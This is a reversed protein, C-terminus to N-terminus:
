LRTGTKRDILEVSKIKGLERPSLPVDATKGDILVTADRVGQAHRVVYRVRWGFTREDAGVSGEDLERLDLEIAERITTHSEDDLDLTAVVDFERVVPKELRLHLKPTCPISRAVRLVEEERADQVLIVGDSPEITEDEAHTLLVAFGVREAAFRENFYPRAAICTPAGLEELTPTHRNKIQHAASSGAVALSLAALAAVLAKIARARPAVHANKRVRAVVHPRAARYPDPAHEFAIVSDALPHDMPVHDRTDLDADPVVSWGPARGASVRALWRARAIDRIASSILLFIGIALPAIAVRLDAFPLAVAAAGASVAGSITAVREPADIAHGRRATSAARALATAAITVVVLPVGVLAFHKAGAIMPVVSAAAIATAVRGLSPARRACVGCSVGAGIAAAGCAIWSSAIAATMAWAVGAAGFAAVIEIAIAPLPKPRM